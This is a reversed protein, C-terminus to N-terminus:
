WAADSRGALAKCVVEVFFHEGWAVSEDVGLGKHYHYIGHMLIGEWEPRGRALFHESCLTQLITRAAAQYRERERADSAAEGLDWLGSAAIAGASSDWLHPVEPPLDFDWYPVLGAPARRLYYDACRRAVDLFEGEGSLRHVATFGYLAWALGRSWTSEANWGQHTSQRLFRGTETDFIGEHATGGDPRVLYRATTRCHELAVDRLATDGTERAAWLIIGVNMMIDIFLSQPGIFSALYGGKQRRLALTQGAEILVQRLAPDGTLHYWRLYTSFFLFGLDHVTRDHRRPELARSYREAWPWWRDDSTHKCLLWLIGPFFGECWHTWHEGERKWRGQVTYMPLYDPYLALTRQAQAATFDLASRLQPFLAEPTPSTANNM